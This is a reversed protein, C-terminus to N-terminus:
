IDIMEEDRQNPEVVNMAMYLADVEDMTTCKELIDRACEVVDDDYAFEVGNGFGVQAEVISQIKSQDKQVNDQKTVDIHILQLARREAWPNFVPSLTDEQKMTLLFKQAEKSSDNASFAVRALVIMLVHITDKTLAPTTDGASTTVEWILHILRILSSILGSRIHTTPSRPITHIREQLIGISFVLSRFIDPRDNFHTISNPTLVILKTFLSVILSQVQLLHKEHKLELPFQNVPTLSYIVQPCDTVGTGLLAELQQSEFNNGIIRNLGHVALEAEDGRWERRDSDFSVSMVINLNSGQNMAHNMFKLLGASKVVNRIHEHDNMSIMLLSEILDCTFVMIFHDVMEFQVGSVGVRKHRIYQESVVELPKIETHLKILFPYLSEILETTTNKTVTSPKFLITAHILALLYPIPFRQYHKQGKFLHIALQSIFHTIKTVYADIRYVPRYRLLFEVLHAKLPEGQPILFGNLEFDCSLAVKSLMEVVPKSTSPITYALISDILLSNDDKFVPTLKVPESRQQQPAASISQVTKNASVTSSTNVSAPTVPEPTATKEEGENEVRTFSDDQPRKRKKHSLNRMEVALFKKESELKKVLEQLQEIRSTQDQQKQANTRVMEEYEQHTKNNLEELKARLIAIEGKAALMASSNSGDHHDVVGGHSQDGSEVTPIGTAEGIAKGTPKLTLALFEDDDDDDSFDSGFDDETIRLM